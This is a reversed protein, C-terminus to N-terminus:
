QSDRNGGPIKSIVHRQMWREVWAAAMEHRPLDLDVTVDVDTVHDWGIRHWRSSPPRGGFIRTALVPGTLINTIVPPDADPDLPQGYPIDSIELEDVVAVPDGDRDLIQRDVIHLKADLHQPETM